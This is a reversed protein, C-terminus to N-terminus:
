IVHSLHLIIKILKILYLVGKLYVFYYSYEVFVILFMIIKALKNLVFGFREKKLVISLCCNTVNCFFLFLHGTNAYAM